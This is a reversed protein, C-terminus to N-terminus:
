SHSCALVYGGNPLLLWTPEYDRCPNGSSDLCVLTPLKAEGVGTGFRVGIRCVSLPPPPPPHDHCDCGVLIRHFNKPTDGEYIYVPDCDPPCKGTRAALVAGNEGPMPSVELADDHQGLKEVKKMGALMHKWQEATFHLLTPERLTYSVDAVNIIKPVPM